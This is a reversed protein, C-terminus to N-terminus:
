YALVMLPLLGIIKNLFNGIVLLVFQDEQLGVYLSPNPMEIGIWTCIICFKLDFSDFDYLSWVILRFKKINSGFRM